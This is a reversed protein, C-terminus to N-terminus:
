ARANPSPHADTFLQTGDLYDLEVLEVSPELSALGSAIPEVEPSGAFGPLWDDHHSLIVRPVGLRRAEDVIFDALSGQVPDGDVNGRGAAALIAVDPHLDDLLAGWRGATDQFLVTGDATEILFVLAGGDGRPSHLHAAELMHEVAQPSLSAGIRGFNAKSREEREAHLIGLDGLCVDSAGARHTGTWTCSHLSPVVSAIVGPGLEVREGGSVCIIQGAPVGVDELVRASEYSAIVRAGTNAVIREAGYLHDFHSHGVLIWDCATVDDATMGPGPADAVRDIYADLFVVLEGVTLRFTACGFWDLTVAM